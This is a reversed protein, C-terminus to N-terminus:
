KFSFAGLVRFHAQIPLKLCFRLFIFITIIDGFSYIRDLGFELLLSLGIVNQPHDLIVGAWILDLIVAPRWRSFFPCFSM